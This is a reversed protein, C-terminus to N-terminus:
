RSIRDIRLSLLLVAAILILTIEPLYSRGFAFFAILWFLTTIQEAM